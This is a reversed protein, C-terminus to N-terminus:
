EVRKRYLRTQLSNHWATWNADSLEREVLNNVQNMKADLNDIYNVMFAESMAPLKPSGFEHSGHHALVIHCLADVTEQGITQGKARLADAKQQIWITCKVIHGVLQGSDTYSFAMDCALEETKGLDHLFNAALVLDKQIHPYLPFISVAVRLMNHTHELLGGLYDHHMKVAAPSKCFQAMRAEDGTFEAVLAKLAPSKIQDLMELVEKYMQAVDQKTRPLFDELDVEETPVVRVSNIVIQMNNQYMESRGRIHVFGPKPISLYVAETAQWMRGNAQGTRDCVYMAIYYDGKATSRLIPDKVLFVGDIPQGAQIQNMFTHAM